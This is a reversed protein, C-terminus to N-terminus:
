KVRYNPLFYFSIFIPSTEKIVYRLVFHKKYLWSNTKWKNLETFTILNVIAIIIIAMIADTTFSQTRGVFYTHHHGPWLELGAWTCKVLKNM